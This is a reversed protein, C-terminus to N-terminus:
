YILSILKKYKMATKEDSNARCVAINFQLLLKLGVASHVDKLDSLDGKEAGVAFHANEIIDSTEDIKDQSCGLRTMIRAAYIRARERQGRFSVAGDFSRAYTDPKGLEYFLLAYRLTLIPASLAVSRFTHALLDIGVAESLEVCELMKLEPILATFIDSYEGLVDRANRGMMVAEIEERVAAIGSYHTLILQMASASITFEGDSYLELAPMIDRTNFTDATEIFEIENRQLAGQGDWYDCFGTSPSYVIANFTFAQKMQLETKLDSGIISSVTVAVGLVTVTLEQRDDSETLKYDEFIVRVRAMEANTLVSYESPTQGRILLRVCEGYICATYSHKDLKDLIETVQRPLELYSMKIAGDM